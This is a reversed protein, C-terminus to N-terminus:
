AGSSPSGRVPDTSCRTMLKHRLAPRLRAPPRPRRRLDASSAPAAGPLARPPPPALRQADLGPAGPPSLQDGGAGAPDDASGLDALTMWLDWDEYGAAQSIDTWGGVPELASRRFMATVPYENRYVLRFPDLTAPTSRVLSHDGFELYDGYCAVAAPERDLADAMRALAGPEILDDADLPFVYATTTEALGKNRTEALGRNVDQRIVRVEGALDELISITEPDTSRDDVVVVELGAEGRLSEIAELLYPGDDHCPIIVSVRPAATM